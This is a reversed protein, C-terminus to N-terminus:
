RPKPSNLTLPHSVPDDSSLRSIVDTNHRAPCVWIPLTRRWAMLSVFPFFTLATTKTPSEM